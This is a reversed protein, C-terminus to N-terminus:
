FGNVQINVTHAGAQLNTGSASILVFTASNYASTSKKYYGIFPVNESGESTLFGNVPTQIFTDAPIPINVTEFLNGGVLNVSVQANWPTSQQPGYTTVFSYTNANSIVSQGSVTGYDISQALQQFGNGNINILNAAVLGQFQIGIGTQATTGAERGIFNGNVTVSRILNNYTNFQIGIGGPQVTIQNGSVVGNELFSAALAVFQIGVANGDIQVNDTISFQFDGAMQIAVNFDSIINGSINTALTSNTAIAVLGQIFSNNQISLGESRGAGGPALMKICESVEVFENGQINVNMVSTNIDSGLSIVIGACGNRSSPSSGAVNGFFSNNTINAAWVGQMNILYANTSAGSLSNKLFCSDITPGIKGAGDWTQTMNICTNYGNATFAMNYISQTVTGTTTPYQILPNVSGFILSQRGEGYMIFEKYPLTLTSTIFYNGTPFFLATASNLAAQIAATDDTVGDGVAGFDKVSVVEQLKLNIARNIAGTPVNTGNKLSFNPILTTM